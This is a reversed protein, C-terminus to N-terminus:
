TQVKQIQFGRRERYKALCSINLTAIGMHGGNNIDTIKRADIGDTTLFYVAAAVVFGFGWFLDVISVNKIIISVLWLLTMMTMIVAFAILYANIFTM